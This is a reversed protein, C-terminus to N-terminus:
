NYKGAGIRLGASREFVDVIWWNYVPDSYMCDSARSAQAEIWYDVCPLVFYSDVKVRAFLIAKTVLCNSRVHAAIQGEELDELRAVISDNQNKGQMRGHNM